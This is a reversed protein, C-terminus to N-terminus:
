GADMVIHGGVIKGVGGSYGTRGNNLELELNSGSRKVATDTRTV